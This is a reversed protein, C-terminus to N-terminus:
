KNAKLRLLIYCLCSMRNRIAFFLVKRLLTMNDNRNIKLVSQLVENNVIEKIRNKNVKSHRNAVSEQEMASVVFSLYPKSVRHIIENEYGLKECLDKTRIYFENLKDFRDERFIRSLSYDNKRYYYFSEPLVAVSQVNKFLDILSYVDESIIERESVFRWSSKKIIELSYLMLCPSMYFNKIGDGKPNMAILEPLFFNRVENGRYIQHGLPTIFEGTVEGSSDTFKIGFLVIEAKSDVAARYSKEITEPAVFDDSDFFCIFEGNANEIGTNRAMGLGQNEKHIVRIRNDKEAWADCILPSKDTSGDDVLVIELDKYTQDAVSKICDNLYKEVNYVPLVVTILGKIM